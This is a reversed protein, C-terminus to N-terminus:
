VVLQFTAPEIGSLTMQNKLQGLGELWVIAKCDVQTGSIKRPTFPPQHM